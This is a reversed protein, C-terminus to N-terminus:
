VFSHLLFLRRSVSQITRSLLTLKNMLEEKNYLYNIFYPHFIPNRISRRVVAYPEMDHTAKYPLLVNRTENLM